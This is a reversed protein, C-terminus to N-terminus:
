DTHKLNQLLNIFQYERFSFSQLSMWDFLWLYSEHWCTNWYSWASLPHKKKCIFKCIQDCLFLYGMHCISDYSHLTKLKWFSVHCSFPQACLVQHGFFTTGLQIGGHPRSYNKIRPGMTLHLQPVIKKLHGTYCLLEIFSFSM